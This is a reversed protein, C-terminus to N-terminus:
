VPILFVISRTFSRFYDDNTAYILSVADSEVNTYSFLKWVYNFSDEKILTKRLFLLLSSFSSAEYKFSNHSKQQQQKEELKHKQEEEMQLEDM